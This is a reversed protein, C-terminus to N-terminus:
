CTFWSSPDSGGRGGVAVCFSGEPWRPLPGAPWPGDTRVTVRLGDAKSTAAADAGQRRRIDLEAPSCLGHSGRLPPPREAGTRRFPSVRGCKTLPPPTTTQPSHVGRGPHTRNELLLREAQQEEPRTEENGSGRQGLFFLSLIRICVKLTIM